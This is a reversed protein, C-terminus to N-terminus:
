HKLIEKTNESADNLYASAYPDGQNQELIRSLALLASDHLTDPNAKSLEDAIQLM